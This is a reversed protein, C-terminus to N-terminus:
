YVPGPASPPPRVGLAGPVAPPNPVDMGPSRSGFFQHMRLRPLLGTRNIERDLGSSLRALLQQEQANTIVKAAVLKDLRSRTAATIADKLGAVSKGRATTIQALSKRASLEDLM